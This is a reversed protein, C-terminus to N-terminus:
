TVHEECFYFLIYYNLVSNNFLSSLIQLFMNFEEAINAVFIWTTLLHRGQTLTVLVEKLILLTEGSAVQLAFKPSQEREPLGAVIDTQTVPVVAGTDITM